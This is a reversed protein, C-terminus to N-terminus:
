AEMQYNVILWRIEKKVADRLSEPSLIIAHAGYQVAWRRMAPESVRIRLTLTEQDEDIVRFNSGFWSIFESTMYKWLRLTVLSKKGPFIYPNEELFRGLNFNAEYLSIDRRTTENIRIHMIRQIQFGTLKGNARDGAILYYRGNKIVIYYPDVDYDRCVQNEEPVTSDYDEPILQGEPTYSGYRFRIPRDDIIARDLLGWIEAFNDQVVFHNDLIEPHKLRKKFHKGSLAAIRNGLDEFYHYPVTQSYFLADIILRLESDSISRTLYFDTRIDNESEEDEAKGGSRHFERFRIDYGFDILDNLARRVSKRDASMEFDKLLLECIQKQSLPHEPDSYEELIRLICLTLMKKPPKTYLMSKREPSHRLILQAPKLEFRSQCLTEKSNM